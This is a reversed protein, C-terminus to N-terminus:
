SIFERVAATVAGVEIETMEPYMPLSIIQRAVRETEPLRRVELHAYVPQMHVPVPYHIAAGIDQSHLYGLLRDRDQAGVVFLHYVHGVRERVVPLVLGTESLGKIYLDALRARAGNDEDLYRLKVRLIAAQLEDLRSNWGPIHSVYREAWGYERLLRAKEALEPDGTVVAGGDGLAGLNKTPYFSFCAMDGFSGVRKGRYTAGHAQACDEIICLGYERAIAFIDEMPAPHGYLHVPLVAKTKATIGKELLDPDMTYTVPDIDVFVPKAGALEIAAVTAVATHSVTVVEDGHGIGCAVLALHLAETGNGVGVSHGVGLYAAFEEEFARVEDGLIYWGSELVRRVADDIEQKHALYQAKPNACPILPLDEGRTRLGAM